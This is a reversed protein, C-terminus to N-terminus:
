GTVPTIELVAARLEAETLGEFQALGAADTHCVVERGDALHLVVSTGAFDLDPREVARASVELRARAPDRPDAYLRVDVDLAGLQEAGLSVGRAEIAIKAKHEDKRGKRVTAWALTPAPRFLLALSLRLTRLLQGGQEQAQTMVWEFPTSLFSFDPPRYARRPPMPLADAVVLADMLRLERYLAFCDDCVVLHAQLTAFRDLPRDRIKAELFEPLNARYESCMKRTPGDGNAAVEMAYLRERCCGCAAVHESLAPDAVPRDLYQELRGADVNWACTPASM